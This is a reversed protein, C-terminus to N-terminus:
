EFIEVYDHNVSIGTSKENKEGTVRVQFRHFDGSLVGSDFLLRRHLPVAAYTYQDIFMEQGGDISVAAIGRNNEKSAYWKLRSGTFSLSFYDGPNASRHESGGLAEGREGDKTWKGYYSFQRPGSGIILNDVLYSKPPPPLPPFKGGAKIRVPVLTLFYYLEMEYYDGSTVIVAEIEDESGRQWCALVRPCYWGYPRIVDEGIETWPGWPHPADYYIFHTEDSNVNPDGPYYWAVLVYRGLMPLYTAGTEGCKLPNRIIPLADAPHASWNKDLLGDGGLYFSWNSASLRGIESRLVRGLIYQDGNCWFGNNSIAYVYRDAQDVAFSYGDQGYHIFYPTAFSAGPFMPAVYNEEAGREWTLGQDSSKILSANQAIQRRFADRSKTGYQHRAVALYLTGDIALCGSSKWTCSDPGEEAWSGYDPMCNITKGELQHFTEGQMQNFFLNSSCARNWGSGDNGPSYLAGNAGWTLDWTDGRCNRFILPEGLRVDTIQASAKKM